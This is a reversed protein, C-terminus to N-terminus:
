GVDSYGRTDRKNRSKLSRELPQQSARTRAPLRWLGPESSEVRKTAERCKHKYTYTRLSAPCSPDAGCQGGLSPVARLGPSRPRPEPWPCHSLTREASRSSTGVRPLTRSAADQAFAQTRQGEGDLARGVETTYLRRKRFGFDGVPSCHNLGRLRSSCRSGRPGASRARPAHVCAANSPSARRPRFEVRLRETEWGFLLILTSPDSSRLLGWSM